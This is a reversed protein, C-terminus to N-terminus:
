RATVPGSPERCGEPGAKGSIDLPFAPGRHYPTWLTTPHGPPRPEDRGSTRDYHETQSHRRHVGPLASEAPSELGEIGAGVSVEFSRSQRRVCCLKETDTLFRPVLGAVNSSYGAPRSWRMPIRRGTSADVGGGVPVPDHILSAAVRTVSGPPPWCVTLKTTLHWRTCSDTIVDTGHDARPHAWRCRRRRSRVSRTRAHRKRDCGADDHCHHDVDGRGVLDGKLHPGRGETDFGAPALEQGDRQVVVAVKEEFRVQGAGDRRASRASGGEDQVPLEVGEHRM